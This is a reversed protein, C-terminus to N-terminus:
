KKEPGPPPNDKARKKYPRRSQNLKEMQVNWRHETIKKCCYERLNDFRDTEYQGGCFQCPHKIYRNEAPGGGLEWTHGCQPCKM